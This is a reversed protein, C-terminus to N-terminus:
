ARAIARPPLVWVGGLGDAGEWGNRGDGHRIQAQGQAAWRGGAALNFGKGAPSGGAFRGYSAIVMLWLKGRGTERVVLMMRFMATRFVFM